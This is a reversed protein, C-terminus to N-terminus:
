TARRLTWHNSPVDISIDVRGLVYRLILTGDDQSEAYAVPKHKKTEGVAEGWANIQGTREEWVAQAEESLLIADLSIRTVM